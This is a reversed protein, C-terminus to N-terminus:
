TGADPPGGQPKDNDVVLRLEPAPPPPQPPEVKVLVGGMQSALTAVMEDREERDLDAQAELETVALRLEASEESARELREIRRGLDEVLALIRAVMAETSASM